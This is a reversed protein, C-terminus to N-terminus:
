LREIALLSIDDQQNEGAVILAENFIKGCAENVPAKPFESACASLLPDIGVMEGSSDPIDTIGDTYAVLRMKELFPVTYTRYAMSPDVGMMFDQTELLEFNGDPFFLVPPCHGASAYLLSGSKVELKGALVTIFMGFRDFDDAMIKNTESLLEGPFLDPRLALLTKFTMHMLLTFIAASMGKGMADAIFFWLTNEDKNLFALYDGGIRLAPQSKSFLKLGPIEPMKKPVINRHLNVAIEMERRALLSSGIEEQWILPPSIEYNNNVNKDPLIYKRMSIFNFGKERSFRIDDMVTKIVYLGRGYEPVDEINKWDFFPEMESEAKFPTGKDYIRFSISHRRMVRLEIPESSERGYAHEIINNAAEVIALEILPLQDQHFYPQCADVCFAALRRVNSYTASVCFYRQEGLEM